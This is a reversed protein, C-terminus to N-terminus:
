KAKRNILEARAKEKWPDPAYSVIYRLHYDLCQREILLAYAKEKWPDPAYSVVWALWGDDTVTALDIEDQAAAWQIAPSCADHDNLYKLIETKTM